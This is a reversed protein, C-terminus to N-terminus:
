GLENFAPFRASEGLACRRMSMEDIKALHEPLRIWGLHVLRALGVCKFLVDGRIIVTLTKGVNPLASVESPFVFAFVPIERHGIALKQTVAFVKFVRRQKYSAIQIPELNM